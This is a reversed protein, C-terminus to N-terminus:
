VPIGTPTVAGPPASPSGIHVHAAFPRGGITATASTMAGTIAVNGGFSSNGVATIGGTVTVDGTVTLDGDVIMDGIFTYDGTLAYGTTQAMVGVIVGNSESSPFVRSIASLDLNNRMTVVLVTDGPTPTIGDRAGVTIEPHDTGDIETILPIVEWTDPLLGAGVVTAVFADTWQMNFTSM